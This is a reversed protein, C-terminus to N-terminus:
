RQLRYGLRRLAQEDQRWNKLVKVQLELYIRRDLFKEVSQRARTSISKIKQGNKGIVIAKQSDREVFITAHVYVMGNPREKYEEVIVAISHPVEEDTGYLVAERVMEGVIDRVRLDSIQDPPFFLPGEPLGKIILDLLEEVGKNETAVTTVWTVEPLLELHAHFKELYKEPTGAADVKNFVHIVRAEPINKIMQVVNLDGETPPTSVDSIFVIVDADHLADSAVAYMFEGLVTRPRHVGPTDIFIIQADTRTLIGLQRIRTTQPKPSVIAVKEGLIANILTSKGVNPRGVVAVYGSRHGEPLPALLSDTELLEAASIPLYDAADQSPHLGPLDEESPSAPMPHHYDENKEM